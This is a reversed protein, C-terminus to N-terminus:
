PEFDLLLEYDEVDLWRGFKLGVKEFHSVKKFGLKKHLAISSENGGTICAILAKYGRRRCEAVLEKMLLTGIGKGVYDPSLYVTTELTHKYAGYEKWFHAYCYGVVNEGIEYVLCPFCGSIAMVRRNMDEESLPAEEFTATGHVVYENYIDAMFHIDQQKVPRIMRQIKAAFILLNCLYIGVKGWLDTEIELGFSQSM